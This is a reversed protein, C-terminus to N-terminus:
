NPPSNNGKDSSSNTSTGKQSQDSGKGGFIRGFFGKKKKPDQPNNPDQGNAAQTPTLPM